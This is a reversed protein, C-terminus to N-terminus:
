LVKRLARVCLPTVTTSAWPKECPWIFLTLLTRPTSSCRAVDIRPCIGTTGDRLLWPVTTRFAAARDAVALAATVDPPTVRALAARLPTRLLAARPLKSWCLACAVPRTRLRSRGDAPTRVAPVRAEPAPVPVTEAAPTRM